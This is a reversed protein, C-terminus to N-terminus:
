LELTLLELVHPAVEAAVTALEDDGWTPLPRHPYKVTVYRYDPMGALSALARVGEELSEHVVAVSPIGQWEFEMAARLSRLSCSGCGGFGAVVATAEARLWKVDDPSAPVSKNAKLVEIPANLPTERGIERHVAMLLEQARGLRNSVLGVTAGELSTPRPAALREEFIPRGTPEVCTITATMDEERPHDTSRKLSPWASM